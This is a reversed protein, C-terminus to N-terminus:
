RKRNVLFLGVGLLAVLVFGGANEKVYAKTKSLLADAANMWAVIKNYVSRSISGAQVGLWSGAWSWVFGLGADPVNYDAPLESKIKNAEILLNQKDRQLEPPVQTRELLKVKDWWKTLFEADDNM